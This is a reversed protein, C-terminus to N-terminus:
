IDAYVHTEARAGPHCVAGARAPGVTQAYRWIAGSQYDSQPAKWKKRRADLEGDSLDVELSGAEADIRIVDGDQLLAIPGGVAAEPAHAQPDPASREDTGSARPPEAAIPRRERSAENGLFSSAAEKELSSRALTSPM